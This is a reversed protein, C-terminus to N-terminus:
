IGFVVATFVVFQLSTFTVDKNFRIERKAVRYTSTIHACPEPPQRRCRREDQAVAGNGEFAVHLGIDGGAFDTRPQLRQILISVGRV